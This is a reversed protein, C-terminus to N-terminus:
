SVLDDSPYIESVCYASLIFSQYIKPPSALAHAGSVKQNAEGCIKGILAEISGDKYFKRTGSHVTCGSVTQRGSQYLAIHDEGQAFARARKSWRGNVM